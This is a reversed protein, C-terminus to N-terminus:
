PKPSLGRMLRDCQAVWNERYVRTGFTPLNEVLWALEPVEMQAIQRFFYIGQENLWAKNKPGVGIIDLLEDANAGSRAARPKRGAGAALIAAELAEPSMTGADSMRYPAPKPKAAKSAAAARPKRPAKAAAVAAGAAMLPMAAAPAEPAAQASDELFKTRAELYRVRWRLGTVEEDDGAAPAAAASAQVRAEALEAELRAIRQADAASTVAAGAVAGGGAAALRAALNDREAQLAVVDVGDDRNKCNCLGVLWAVLMGLLFALLLWFWIQSILFM